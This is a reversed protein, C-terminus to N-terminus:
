AVAIPAAPSRGSASACNIPMTSFPPLPSAVCRMEVSSNAFSVGYSVCKTWTLAGGCGSTAGSIADTTWCSKRSTTAPPVACRRAPPM